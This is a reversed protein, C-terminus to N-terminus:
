AQREAPYAPAPEAHEVAAGGFARGAVLAVAAHEDAAPLAPEAGPDAAQADVRGDRLVDQLGEGRERQLGGEVGRVLELGPVVGRQLLPAALGLLGAVGGGPGFSAVARDVRFVPQDGAPQFGFPLGRELRDAFRVSFQVATVFGPGDLEAGALTAVMRLRFAM